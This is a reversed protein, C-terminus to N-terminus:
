VINTGLGKAWSSEKQGQPPMIPDLLQSWKKKKIAGVGISYIADGLKWTKGSIVFSLAAPSLAPDASESAM